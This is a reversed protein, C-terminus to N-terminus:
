SRPPGNYKELLTTNNLGHFVVKVAVDILDTLITYNGAMTTTDQGMLNVAFAVMTNDKLCPTLMPKMNTNM